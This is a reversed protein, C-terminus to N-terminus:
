LICKIETYIYIPRSNAPCPVEKMEWIGLITGAGPITCHPVMCDGGARYELVGKVYTRSFIFSVRTPKNQETKRAVCHHPFSAVILHEM